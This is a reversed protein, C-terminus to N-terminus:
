VSIVSVEIHKGYQNEIEKLGLYMAETLLNVKAKQEDNLNMPYDVTLYGSDVNHEVDSVVLREIAILTTQALSSIGACVIDEGSSAFKSHGKLQYGIYNDKKKFIKIKVM